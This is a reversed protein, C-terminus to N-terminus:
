MDPNDIAIDSIDARRISHQQVGEDALPGGGISQSVPSLLNSQVGVSLFHSTALDRDNVRGLLTPTRTTALEHPALLHDKRVRGVDPLGPVNSGVSRDGRTGLNIHRKRCSSNQTM